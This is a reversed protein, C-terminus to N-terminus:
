NDSVVPLTFSFTSGRGLESEAWIKGGNKEIFEKCLMLGLGSGEENNTGITTHHEDIKFIKELYEAAMGVGDDKVSIVVFGDQRTEKVEIRGNPKTFKIANTVLNQIVSNIMNTDAYTEYSQPADFMLLISKNSAIDKLLNLNEAIIENVFLKQPNFPTKGRQLRAWDLLNKVLELLKNIKGNMLHVYEKIEAQSLTDFDTVIIESLGSLSFFPSKLDHAIISFFKDKSANLSKLSNEIEIHETM